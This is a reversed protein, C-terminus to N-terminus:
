ITQHFAMHFKRIMYYGKNTLYGPKINPEPIPNPCSKMSCKGKTSEYNFANCVLGGMDALSECAVRCEEISSQNITKAHNCGSDKYIKDLPGKWHEFSEFSWPVNSNQDSFYCLNHLFSEVIM